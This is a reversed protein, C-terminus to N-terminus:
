GSLLFCFLVFFLHSGPSPKIQVGRLVALHTVKEVRDLVIATFKLSQDVHDQIRKVRYSSLM